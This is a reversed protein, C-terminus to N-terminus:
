LIVIIRNLLDQTILNKTSIFRREIEASFLYSFRPIDFYQFSIYAAAHGKKQGITGFCKGMLVNFNSPM